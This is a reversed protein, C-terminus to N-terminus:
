DERTLLYPTSPLCEAAQLAKEKRAVMSDSEAQSPGAGEDGDDIACDARCQALVLDPPILVCSNHENEEAVFGYSHLLQHNRLGAGYTNWVQEGAKVPHETLM